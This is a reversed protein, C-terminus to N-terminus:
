RMLFRNPSELRFLCEADDHRHFIYLLMARNGQSLVTEERVNIYLNCFSVIFEANCSRLQALIIGMCLACQVRAAHWFFIDRQKKATRCERAWLARKKHPEQKGVHHAHRFEGKVRAMAMGIHLGVYVGM